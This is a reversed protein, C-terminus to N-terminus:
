YSIIKKQNGKKEATKKQLTQKSHTDNNNLTFFHFDVSRVTEIINKYPNLISYPM